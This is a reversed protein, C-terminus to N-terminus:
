LNTLYINQSFSFELHEGLSGGVNSLLTEFTMAPVEDIQMYSLDEYFMNLKVLVRSISEFNTYNVFSENLGSNVFQYFKYDNILLNAYWQSPYSSTSVQLDYRVETCEIPCKELCYGMLQQSQYFKNQRDTSCKIEDVSSCSRAMYISSMAPSRPMRIDYCKCQEYLYMQFCLKLCTSQTYTIEWNAKFGYEDLTNNLIFHQYMFKLVENQSWDIEKIQNSLCGTYPSPLHNILTRKIAVNTQQGAAVDIGVDDYVKFPDSQNFVNVRFGHLVAYKEQLLPNLTYLEVQFGYRRGVLGLKLYPM